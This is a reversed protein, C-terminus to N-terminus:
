YPWIANPKVPFARKLCFVEKPNLNLLKTFFTATKPTIQRGTKVVDTIKQRGFTDWTWRVAELDGLNLLREIVYEPYKAADLKAPNLDWFYKHLHKPIM